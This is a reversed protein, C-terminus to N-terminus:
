GEGARDAPARAGSPRDGQTVVADGVAPASSEDEAPSVDSREPLTFGFTSGVGAETELWM